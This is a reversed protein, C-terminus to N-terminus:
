FLGKSACRSKRADVRFDTVLDQLGTRSGHRRGEQLRVSQAFIALNSLSLQYIWGACFHLGSIM